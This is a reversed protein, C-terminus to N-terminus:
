ANKKEGGSAELDLRVDTVFHHNVIKFTTYGNCSAVISKVIKIGYGHGESSKRTRLDIKERDTPNSVLIRLYSDTICRKIEVADDKDQPKYNELANDVLNTRLACLRTDKFPLVSPVALLYKLPIKRIRAKSLELNRISSVVWNGCDVIHFDGFTEENISTVYSLAEDYQKEKLLNYIYAYHNKLDHRAISTREISEQNLKLRTYASDNLKAQAQRVLRDEQKKQNKYLVMYIGLETIFFFSLILVITLSLYRSPTDSFDIEIKSTRITIVFLSLFVFLSLCLSPTPIELYRNINYIGIILGSIRRLLNPLCQLFERLAPSFAITLLNVQHSIETVVYASSVFLLLKILKHTYNSHEFLVIYVAGPVIISGVIIYPLFMSEIAFSSFVSSFLLRSSFLIVFAISKQIIYKKQLHRHGVCFVADLAACILQFCFPISFIFIFFRKFQYVWEQM